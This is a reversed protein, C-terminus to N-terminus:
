ADSAGPVAGPIVEPRGLQIRHPLQVLESALQTDTDLIGAAPSKDLKDEASGLWSSWYVNAGRGTLGNVTAPTATERMPLVLLVLGLVISTRMTDEPVSTAPANEPSDSGVEYPVLVEVYATSGAVPM